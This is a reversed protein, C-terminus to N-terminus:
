ANVRVVNYYELCTSLDWGETRFETWQGLLQQMVSCNAAMSCVTRGLACTMMLMM